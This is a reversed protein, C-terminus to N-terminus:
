GYKTMNDRYLSCTLHFLSTGTNFPVEGVNISSNKQLSLSIRAM